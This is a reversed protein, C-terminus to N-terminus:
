KNHLSEFQIIDDTFILLFPTQRKRCKVSCLYITVSNLNKKNCHHAIFDSETKAHKTQQRADSMWSKIHFSYLLNIRFDLFLQINAEIEHIKGV